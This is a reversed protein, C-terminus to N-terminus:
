CHEMHYTLLIELRLLSGNGVGDKHDGNSNEDFSSSGIPKCWKSWYRILLFRSAHGRYRIIGITIDLYISLKM